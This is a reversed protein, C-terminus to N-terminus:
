VNVEEEDEEEDYEEEGENRSLQHEVRSFDIRDVMANVLLGLDDLTNEGHFLLRADDDVLGLRRAAYDSISIIHSLKTCWPTECDCRRPDGIYEVSMIPATAGTVPNTESGDTYWKVGDIAGVWGALCFSTKCEPNLPDERYAEYREEPEGNHRWSDQYWRVINTEILGVVEAALDAGQAARIREYLALREERDTIM